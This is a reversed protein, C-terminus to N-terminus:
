VHGVARLTVTLCNHGVGKSVPTLDSWCSRVSTNACRDLTLDAERRRVGMRFSRASQVVAVVASYVTTNHTTARRYRAKLSEFERTLTM